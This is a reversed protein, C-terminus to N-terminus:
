GACATYLPPLARWVKTRWEGQQRSQGPGPPGGPWPVAPSRNLAGGVLGSGAPVRASEVGALRGRSVDSPPIHCLLEPLVLERFFSVKHKRHLFTSGAASETLERECKLAVVNWRLLVVMESWM